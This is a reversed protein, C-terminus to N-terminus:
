LVRPRYASASRGQKALGDIQPSREQALRMRVDRHPLNMKAFQEVEAAFIPLRALLHLLRKLNLAPSVLVAARGAVVGKGVEVLETRIAGREGLLHRHGQWQRSPLM